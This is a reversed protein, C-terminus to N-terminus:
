DAHRVARPAPTTAERLDVMDAGQLIQGTLAMGLKDLVRISAENGPSNIALIRTLGHERRGWAMVAGAAELAYGKGWHEPLFAFGIDPDPLTDRKLLGCIGVRTHTDAMEVCLLGFGYRAYMAMPGNRIYARADDLTRVGRDGIYQLFSPENLLRLIFAVDGDDGDSLPRLELRETTIVRGAAAKSTPSSM